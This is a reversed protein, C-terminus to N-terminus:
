YIFRGEYLDVITQAFREIRLPSDPGPIQDSLEATDPDFLLVTTAEIAHPPDGDSTRGGILEFRRILREVLHVTSKKTGDDNWEYTPIPMVGGVIAFPFKLHINVAFSRVDGFRNWIARGVALYVPKIEVALRVGDTIEVSTVDSNATRLAGHVKHEGVLLDTLEPHRQEIEHALHTGLADGLRLQVRKKQRANLTPSRSVYASAAVLYDTLSVVDQSELKDVEAVGSPDRKKRKRQM